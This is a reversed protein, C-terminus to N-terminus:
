LLVVRLIELKIAGYFINGVMPGIYDSKQENGFNVTPTEAKTQKM